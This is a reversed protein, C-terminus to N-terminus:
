GHNKLRYSFEKPTCNHIKKFVRYFTVESQFGSDKCLSEISYTDLYSNYILQEAHAIRFSNIFSSFNKFDSKSIIERITKVSIDTDSSMNTLSYNANLYFKQQEMMQYLQNSLESEYQGLLNWTQIKQVLLLSKRLNLLNSPISDHEYERILPFPLM